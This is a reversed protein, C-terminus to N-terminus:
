VRSNSKHHMLWCQVHTNSLQEFTEPCYPHCRYTQPEFNEYFSVHKNLLSKHTFARNCANCRYRKYGHQKKENRSFFKCYAPSQPRSNKLPITFHPHLNQVTFISLLEQEFEATWINEQTPSQNETKMANLVRISTILFFFIFYKKINKNM